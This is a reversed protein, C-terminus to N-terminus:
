HPVITAILACIQFHTKETFAPRYIHVNIDRLLAAPPPPPPPLSLSTPTRYIRQPFSITNVGVLTTSHILVGDILERGSGGGNIYTQCLFFFLCLRSYYCEHICVVANEETATTRMKKLYILSTQTIHSELTRGFSKDGHACLCLTFHQRVFSM